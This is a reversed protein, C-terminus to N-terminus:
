FDYKTWNQIEKLKDGKKHQVIYQLLTNFFFIKLETPIESPSITNVEVFIRIYEEFSVFKSKFEYYNASFNDVEYLEKCAKDIFSNM